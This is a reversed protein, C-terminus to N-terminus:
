VGDSYDDYDDDYVMMMIMMCWRVGDDYDDYVMTQQETAM